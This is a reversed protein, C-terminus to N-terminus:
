QDFYPLQADIYNNNAYVAITPAVEPLCVSLCVFLLLWPHTRTPVHGGQGPRKKDYASTPNSKHTSGAANYRLFIRVIIIKFTPIFYPSISLFHM